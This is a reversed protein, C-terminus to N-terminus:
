RVVLTSVMGEWEGAANQHAHPECIITYSGPAADITVLKSDGGLLSVDIGLEEVTFTHFVPDTNKALITGGAAVEYSEGFEFNAITVPTAGEAAAADVSERQILFMMASAALAVLVVALTTGVIRREGITARERVNGRRGQVIAAVGGGVGLLLGLPMAIAPVFDLISAPHAIGFAVWFTMVGIAVAVLIGLVKAWTGFRWVLGAGILAGALLPAVFGVAEMDGNAIMAVLFVALVGAVLLLGATETRTHVPRLRATSELPLSPAGPAATAM